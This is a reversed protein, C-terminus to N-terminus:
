ILGGGRPPSQPYAGIGEHYRPWNYYMQFISLILNLARGPRRLARLFRRKEESSLSSM